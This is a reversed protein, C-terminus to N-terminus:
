VTREYAGAAGSGDNLRTVGALDFPLAALGAPVRDYAANSAGTLQYDGGGASTGFGKQQPNVFTVTGQESSGRGFYEGLWGGPDGVAGSGSALDTNINGFNGVNHRFAWNGTRDNGDAHGENVVWFVDSKINRKWTLNFRDVGRKIASPTIGSSTYMMNSRDGVRTNYLSIINVVDNADNDAAMSIAAANVGNTVIETLNQILAAGRSYTHEGGLNNTLRQKQFSNFGVYCGDSTDRKLAANADSTRAGDHFVNGVCVQQEIVYGSGYTHCGAIMAWQTRNSATGGFTKNDGDYFSSNLGYILGFGDWPRAITSAPTTPRYEIGQLALPTYNTGVGSMLSYDNANGAVAATGFVIGAAFRMAIGGGKQTGTVFRVTGTAAPDKRIDLWTKAGTTSAVMTNAGFGGHDAGAGASAEMLYITGGNANDHQDGGAKANNATRLAAAAAAITPFPTARAAALDAVSGVTGGVAGVKVFAVRDGYTGDKDCLFPLSAYRGDAMPASFAGSDVPVEGLWPYVIARVRYATGQTLGALAIDGAFVPVPNGGTIYTSQVMSTSLVSIGQDVGAETEVRFEVCAAMRGDRGRASAALLEVRFTAGTARLLPLTAWRCIEQPAVLESNNMRTPINLSANSSVAGQVYAGAGISASVITEGAYIFDDLAFSIVADGGEAAQAVQAQLPAAQRLPVTGYVVRDYATPAKVANFGNGRVILVLAKAGAMSGVGGTAMGRFRVDAVWGSGDVSNIPTAGRISVSLPDGLVPAPASGPPNAIMTLGLGLGFALM